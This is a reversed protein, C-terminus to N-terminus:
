DHELLWTYIDHGASGDYTRTWSDHGVKPYITAGVAPRPKCKTLKDVPTTTGSVSVTKDADGHFAWIPVKGLECGASDYAGIGNGAIPVAARVREAKYKGLYNWVGYAGCSLGTLYVREPDVNYHELAFDIFADVEDATPCGGGSKQPSLVVFPRSGPWQNARILKPPGHQLVRPLQEASGNGNEGLGHLFVLLPYEGWQTYSPPLYEYYGQKAPTSGLPRATLRNASPGPRVAGRFEEGFGIEGDEAADASAEWADTESEFTCELTDCFTEEYSNAACGALAMALIPASSTRFLQVNM